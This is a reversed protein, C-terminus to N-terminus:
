KKPHLQSVQFMTHMKSHSLAVAFHFIIKGDSTHDLAHCFRERLLNFCCGVQCAVQSSSTAVFLRLIDVSLNGCTHLGTLMLSGVSNSGRHQCVLETLSTQSNVFLTVPIFFNPSLVKCTDSSLSRTGSQFNENDYASCEKFSDSVDVSFPLRCCDSASTAKQADALNSCGRGTSLSAGRSPGVCLGCGDGIQGEQM